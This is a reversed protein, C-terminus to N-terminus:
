FQLSFKKMTAQIFHRKEANRLSSMFFKIFFPTRTINSTAGKFLSAVEHPSMLDWHAILSSRIKIDLAVSRNDDKFKYSEAAIDM